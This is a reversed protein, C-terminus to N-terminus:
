HKNKDILANGFGLAALALVMNLIHFNQETDSPGTGHLDHYIGSLTIHVMLALILILGYFFSVLVFAKLLVPEQNIFKWEHVLRYITLGLVGMTFISGVLYVMIDM